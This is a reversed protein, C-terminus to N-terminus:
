LSVWKVWQKVVTLHTIKKFFIFFEFLIFGFKKIKKFNLEIQLQIKEM